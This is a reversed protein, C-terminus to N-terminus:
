FSHIQDKTFGLRSLVGGGSNMFGIKPGVLSNTMPPPGCLLVKTSKDHGGTIERLLGEDIRGKRLGSKEQKLDSVVYCYNFRTPFRQKFGELEDKLLIDEESNVGFVLNVKTKDNPNNLIGQLVQYMPTIGLGGAILYVQSSRNPVWEYEKIPFLFTLSDGPNLSHLHTSAKGDPYQKVMIEVIGTQALKSQTLKMDLSSKRLLNPAMGSVSIPTYPRIAPFWSGAPRSFTLLSSVITLGSQANEGPLEFVLRKTNHNVSKSSKLRLTKPGWSGFVYKPENSEAHAQTLLSRAGFYAGVGTVACASVLLPKSSLSLLPTRSAM